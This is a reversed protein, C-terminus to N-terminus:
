LHDAANFAMEVMGRPQDVALLELGLHASSPSPKEHAAKVNPPWNESDTSFGDRATGFRSIDIKTHEM